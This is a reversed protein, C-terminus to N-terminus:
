LLKKTEVGSTDCKRIQSLHKKKMRKVKAASIPQVIEARRQNEEKAKRKAEIRQKEKVKEEKRKAIVQKQYDKISKMEAKLVAKREWSTQFAPGKKMASFRKTKVMKWQRGSKPIGRVYTPKSVEKVM